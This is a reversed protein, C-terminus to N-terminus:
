PLWACGALIGLLISLIFMAREPNWLYGSGSYLVAGTPGASQKMGTAASAPSESWLAHRVDGASLVPSLGSVNLRDLIREVFAEDGIFGLCPCDVWGLIDILSNLGSM